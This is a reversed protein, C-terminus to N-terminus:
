LSRLLNWVWGTGCVDRRVSRGVRTLEMRPELPLYHYSRDWVDAVWWRWARM